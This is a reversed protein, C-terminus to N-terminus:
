LLEKQILPCAWKEGNRCMLRLSRQVRPDTLDDPRATRCKTRDADCNVSETADQTAPPIFEGDLHMSAAIAFAIAVALLITLAVDIFVKKFM